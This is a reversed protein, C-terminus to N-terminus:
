TITPTKYSLCEHVKAGEMRVAGLDMKSFIQWMYDLDKREDIRTSIDGITALIIGDEAWAFTRWHDNTDVLNSLRNSWFFGFGAFTDMKGQQLAKVTNYDASGVQELSLMYEICAPSVVWHKAIDPDVDQENFLQMMKLMKQKTISTSSTAYAPATGLTTVSGNSNLGISEAALTISSAGTKGISATGLAAAIVLDDKKRGLSLAQNQTVINTPDPIMRDLDEKDLGKNNTWPLPM